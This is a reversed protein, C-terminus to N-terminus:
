LISGAVVALVFAPVFLLSSLFLQKASDTSRNRAFRVSRLLLIVLAPFMFVLFVPGVIGLAWPLVTAPFLALSYIIALRGTARGYRDMTPLIRYGGKSYDERYMWGLALFHPIQWLFLISFLVFPHLGLENTVAAWGIAPPLAGPIGGVLTALHTRTKLPTYVGLYIGVTVLGLVAALINTSIGLYTIGAFVLAFGFLTGELIGLRGGPIPRHMTRPMRADRRWEMVQNLAIAGSGLLTTGIITHLIGWVSTHPQSGLFAGIAATGIAFITLGPKTLALFQLARDRPSDDTKTHASLIEMIGNPRM